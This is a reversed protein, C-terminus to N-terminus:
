NLEEMRISSCAKVSANRLVGLVNNFKHMAGGNACLAVAALAGYRDRRRRRGDIADGNIVPCATAM